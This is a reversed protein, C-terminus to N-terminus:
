QMNGAYKQRYVNPSVSDKELFTVRMREASPFGALYAVKKISLKTSLLLRRARSMRCQLIEELVSHGLAEAFRRDLTRRTVPLQRAVDSVSVPGQSHSWIYDLAQDVIPDDYNSDGNKSTGLARQESPASELRKNAVEVIIRLSRITISTLDLVSNDRISNILSDFSHLFRDAHNLSTVQSQEKAPSTHFLKHALQGEFSLWRETWGTKSLPRYRHWVGPFLTIIVPSEFIMRPTTRSEFEGAGDTILLVQFEPLVRGRNWDFNYLTPHQNQPYHSDPLTRVRGIGTMNVPDNTTESNTHFYRFFSGLSKNEAVQPQGNVALQNQQNSTSSCQPVSISTFM